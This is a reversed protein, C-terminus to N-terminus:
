NGRNARLRLLERQAQANLREATMQEQSQLRDDFQRSREAMKQRELDLKTHGNELKSYATDSIGLKYGVQYQTYGKEQRISILHDLISKYEDKVFYSLLANKKM